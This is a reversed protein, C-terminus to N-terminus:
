QRRAKTIVVNIKEGGVIAVELMTSGTATQTAWVNCDFTEELASKIALAVRDKDTLVDVM